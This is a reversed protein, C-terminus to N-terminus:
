TLQTQTYRSHTIHKGQKDVKSFINYKLRQTSVFHCCRKNKPAHTYAHEHQDEKKENEM